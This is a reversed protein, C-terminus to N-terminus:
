FYIPYSSFEQNRLCDTICMAIVLLLFINDVNPLEDWVSLLHRVSGGGGGGGKFFFFNHSNSIKGAKSKYVFTPFDSVGGGGVM